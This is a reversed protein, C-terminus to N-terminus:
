PLYFQLLWRMNMFCCADLLFGTHQTHCLPFSFRPGQHCEPEQVLEPGGVEPGREGCTSAVTLAIGSNSHNQSVQGWQEKTKVHLYCVQM